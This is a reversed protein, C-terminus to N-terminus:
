DFIRTTLDAQSPGHLRAITHWVGACVILGIMAGGFAALRHDAAFADPYDPYGRPMGSLGLRGAAISMIGGGALLGLGAVLSVGLRPKGRSRSAWAFFVAFAAILLATGAWHHVGVVLWTDSFGSESGLHRRLWAFGAAPVLALAAICGMIITSRRASPVAISAFVLGAASLTVVGALIAESEDVDRLAPSGGPPISIAVGLGALVVLGISVLSWVRRNGAEAYLAVGLAATSVVPFAFMLAPAHLLGAVNYARRVFGADGSIGPRVLEAAMWAASAFGFIAWLAAVAICVHSMRVM